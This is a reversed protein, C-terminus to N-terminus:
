ARENALGDIKLAEKNKTIIYQQLIVLDSSLDIFLPSGQKHQSMVDNGCGAAAILLILYTLLNKM